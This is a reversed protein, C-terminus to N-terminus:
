VHGHAAVGVEIERRVEALMADPGLRSLLFHAKHVNLLRPRPGLTSGAIFFMGGAGRQRLLPFVASYHDVFGDDFTLLASLRDFPHRDAVAQEFASGSVLDFRAQLWDLQATFDGTSLARIGPFPTREVDRVYHY